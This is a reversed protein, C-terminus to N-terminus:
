LRATHTPAPLQAPVHVNLSVIDHLAQVSAAVNNQVVKVRGNKGWLARATAWAPGGTSKEPFIVFDCSVPIQATHTELNIFRLEVPIKLRDAENRLKAFLSSDGCCFGVMPPRPKEPPPPILLSVTHAPKIPVTQGPVCLAQSFQEVTEGLRKTVLAMLSPADLHEAVSQYDVPREVPIEIIQPPPPEATQMWLAKVREHLLPIIKISCLQRRKEPIFCQEQAKKLIPLVATFPDKLRLAVFTRALSEIEDENWKNYM